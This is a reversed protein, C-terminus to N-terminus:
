EFHASSGSLLQKARAAHPSRPFLRVLELAVERAREHQAGQEHAQLRVLMVEPLLRLEPFDREYRSLLRLARAHRGSALEARTLDLLAIEAALPTGHSVSHSAARAVSTSSLARESFPKSASASASAPEASNREAERTSPPAPRADFFAVSHAPAAPATWLRPAEFSAGTVAAGVLIGLGAWKILLAASGIKGVAAVSCAAGGVSAGAAAAISASSALSSAAQAAIPVAAAESAVVAASGGLGLALLVRQSAHIGPQEKAGARVLEGALGSRRRAMREPEIM